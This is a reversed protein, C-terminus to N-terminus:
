ATRLCMMGKYYPDLHQIVVFALGSNQPVTSFFKEIAELGGASAEIGIIPMILQEPTKSTAPKSVAKQAKNIQNNTDKKM